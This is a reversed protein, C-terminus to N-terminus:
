AIMLDTASLIKLTLVSLQQKVDEWSGSNNLVNYIADTVGPFGSARYANHSSPAFIVHRWLRGPLGNFDLFGRDIQFLQDNVIRISSESSALTLSQAVNNLNQAAKGFEWIASNLDTLQIGNAALLKGNTTELSKFMYRLKAAYDIPNLPLVSLSSLKLMVDAAVQGIAKSYKFEPDIFNEMYKFTDHLSHYVPYSPIHEDFTYRLDVSAVGCRQLFTTYDSGSGLNRIFPLNHDNPNKHLWTDYVTPRNKKKEEENPNQVSKTSNYLLNHLTPTSGARMTANGQVAIDINVYSVARLLLRKELQETWETSGILGPEEAAWNCFVITRRPKWKGQKVVVGMARAVEMVVATGSSPDLGGFAWADRHNGLLVYKDPDQWGKIYGIVNHVKKQVKYNGVHIRVKCNKHLAKFSGGIKYTINLGGQWKEPADQGGLIAMYEYAQEYSIPQAQIKPLKAKSENIRYTLNLSPYGPTLPDGLMQVSGRQFGSPPLWWTNPYGISSKEPSWSHKAMGGYDFPDTFIVIGTCNYLEANKVKEGRFIRGYRAMCISGSVNVNLKLLEEFDEVRGYNVYYLDGSATGNPTHALFSPLVKPKKENQDLPVETYNTKLAVSGNPFVLEIYNPDSISPYSLLVNYPYVEVKDLHTEWTEKILNTLVVEDQHSGAEHPLVTLLRLNEKINSAKIENLILDQIGADFDWQITDSITKVNVVSKGILIGIGIALAAALISAMGLLGKAGS